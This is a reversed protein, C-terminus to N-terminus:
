LKKFKMIDIRGDGGIVPTGCCIIVPLKIFTKAIQLLVNISVDDNITIGQTGVLSELKLRAWDGNKSTTEYTFCNPVCVEISQEDLSKVWGWYEGEKLEM